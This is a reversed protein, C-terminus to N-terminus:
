KIKWGKLGKFAKRLDDKIDALVEKKIEEIEVSIRAGNSKMVDDHSFILGCSRCSYQRIDESLISDFEFDAGACTPCLLQMSRDYSKRM